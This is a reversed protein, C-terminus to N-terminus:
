IIKALRLLQPICEEFKVSYRYDPDDVTHRICEAVFDVAIRVAAAIDNGRALAGVVTAAFVDGTGPYAAPLEDTLIYEIRDCKQTKLAAGIKGPEPRVGTLICNKAGLDTLGCLLQEIYRVNYHERYPTGLLAAAETLNPIIVDARACLEAMTRAFDADFGTYLRGGDGMVPDVVKVAGKGLTDFLDAILQVQKDSGLYGTYVTHFELDLSRFHDIIAPLDETLDRFTFGPIGTHASLVATPLLVAESGLASLIPLAATQSCKGFCSIDQISLIKNM